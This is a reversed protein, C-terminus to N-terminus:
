IGSPLCTTESNLAVSIDHDIVGAALRHRAVFVACGVVGGGGVACPEVM